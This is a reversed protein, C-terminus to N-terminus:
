STLLGVKGSAVDYVAGVILIEGRSELDALIESEDRIRKVGHRVQVEVTRDVLEPTVSDYPGVEETAPRIKALLGTINGLEVGNLASTVAGCRTHGLVMVLRSGSVACAYEMGAIQDSNIVNGAIRSGFIDGM